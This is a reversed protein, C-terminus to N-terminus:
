TLRSLVDPKEKNTGRPVHIIHITEERYLYIRNKQGIKRM